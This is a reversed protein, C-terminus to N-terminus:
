CRIHYTPIKRSIKLLTKQTQALDADVLELAIKVLCLKHKASLTVYQHLEAKKAQYGIFTWYLYAIFLGFLLLKRQNDKFVYVKRISLHTKFDRFMEDIWFRKEYFKQIRRTKSLNNVLYWPKPADQTQVILINVMVKRDQRYEVNRLYRKTGKSYPIKEILTPKGKYYIMVGKRVRIVFLHGEEKLYEFFSARGFGRDAIVVLRMGFSLCGKLENIFDEELDNQSTELDSPRALRFSIPLARSRFPIAGILVNIGAWSTYDIIVPLYRKHKYERSIEYILAEFCSEL